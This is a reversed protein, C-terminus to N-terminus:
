LAKVGDSEIGNVILMDLDVKISKDGQAAKNSRKTFTVTDLVDSRTRGGDNAYSVIIKPIVLKFLSIRKSRCYDLLADYDDRLLSVKGEAKYNGEGYGRPKQGKGYALEKELEDDYSIEQFELTLGSLKIDVDAWDYTKGNIRLSM